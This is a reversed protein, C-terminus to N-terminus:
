EGKLKGRKKKKERTSTDRNLGSAIKKWTRSLAPMKAVSMIVRPQPGIETPPPRAPYKNQGKHSVLARHQYDLTHDASRFREAQEASSHGSLSTVLYSLQKPAKYNGCGNDDKNNTQKRHVNQNRKHSSINYRALTSMAPQGHHRANTKWNPTPGKRSNLGVGAKPRKSM